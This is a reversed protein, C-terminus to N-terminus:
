STTNIRPSCRTGPRATTRSSNRKRKEFEREHMYRINTNIPHEACGCDVGIVKIKKKLAWEFFGPAPGPHRVLYSFEKSDIGGQAKKNKVDPQDYGYKHYGTNIILIDGKKVDVVKEVMEPTYVSTDSVMSSIDAIAGKGIWFDM